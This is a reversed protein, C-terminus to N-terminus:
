DFLCKPKWLKVWIGLSLMFEEKRNKEPLEDGAGSNFLRTHWENKKKKLVNVWNDFLQTSEQSPWLRWLDKQWHLGSVNLLWYASCFRNSILMKEIGNLKGHCTM